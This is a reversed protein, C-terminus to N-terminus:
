LTNQNGYLEEYTSVPIDLLGFIHSLAQIYRKHESRTYSLIPVPFFVTCTAGAPVEFTLVNLLSQTCILLSMYAYKLPAFFTILM